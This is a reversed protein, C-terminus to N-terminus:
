NKLSVKNWVGEHLERNRDGIQRALSIIESIMMEAVSRSNSFPSNFVPVALRTAADLDVQNTGICFCGIALLKKANELIKKTLQTKSRIGVAHVEKIKEMLVEEPLAKPHWEVQYGADKLIKVGTDSVGSLSM